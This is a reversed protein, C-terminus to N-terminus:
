MLREYIKYQIIYIINYFKIEDVYRIKLFKLVSESSEIFKKTNRPWNDLVNINMLSIKALKFKLIYQFSQFM